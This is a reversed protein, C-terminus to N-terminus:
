KWADMNQVQLQLEPFRKEYLITKSIALKYCSNGIQLESRIEKQFLSYKNWFSQFIENTCCCDLFFYIFNLNIAIVGNLYLNLHQKICWKSAETVLDLKTSESTEFLLHNQVKVSNM